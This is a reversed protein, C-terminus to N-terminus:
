DGQVNESWGDIPVTYYLLLTTRKTELIGLKYNLVRAKLRWETNFMNANLNAKANSARM